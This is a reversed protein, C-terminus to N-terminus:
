SLEIETLYRASRNAFQDLSLVNMFPGRGGTDATGLSSGGGDQIVIFTNSNDLAEAITVAASFGDESRFTVLSTGAHSVGLRTFVAALPVGRFNRVEDRHTQTVARPTLALIDAMTATHTRGGVNIDFTGRGVIVSSNRSDWHVDKDFAEGIARLPVFTTGEHVFPTVINGAADRAFLQTGDIFIRVVSGQPPLSAPRRGIIVSNSANDWSVDRGFAEGVARIPLFTTGSVLQPQVVRGNADRPTILEGEIFVRINSESAAASPAMVGIICVSVLAMLVARRFLKRM